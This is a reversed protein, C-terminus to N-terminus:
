KKDRYRKYFGLVEGVPVKEVTAKGIGQTFVFHIDTGTKKKDHLVLDEMQEDTLDLKDSLKFRELLDLIRDKEEHNIYGKEFSFETALVMGSAVAFGHKVGKQLEVAHGFTHGFNLIRRLGTEREDNSVVLGKFKVSKAVLTTLLDSNRAIIEEFSEEIIGFLKKDGIVATKILEALGSLYEKESLTQLM